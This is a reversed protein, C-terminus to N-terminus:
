KNRPSLQRDISRRQVRFTVQITTKKCVACALRYTPRFRGRAKYQLSQEPFARIFSTQPQLAKIPGITQRFTRLVTGLRAGPMALVFPIRPSSVNMTKSNHMDNAVTSIGAMVREKRTWLLDVVHPDTENAPMVIVKEDGLVSSWIRPRPVIVLVPLVCPLETAL